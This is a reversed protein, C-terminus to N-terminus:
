RPICFGASPVPRSMVRLAFATARMNETGSDSILMVSGSRVGGAKLAPFRVSQQQAAPAVGAVVYKADEDARAHTSGLLGLVIFALKAVTRASGRIRNQM